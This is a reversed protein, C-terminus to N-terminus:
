RAYAGGTQFLSGQSVPPTRERFDRSTIEM